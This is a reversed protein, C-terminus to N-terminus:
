SSATPTTTNTAPSAGTTSAARTVTVTVTATATVAATAAVALLSNETAPAPTAPLNEPTPAPLNAAPETRATASPFPVEANGLVLMLFINADTCFINADTRASLLARGLLKVRYPIAVLPAPGVASELYTRISRPPSSLRQWSTSSPVCDLRCNGVNGMLIPGDLTGM